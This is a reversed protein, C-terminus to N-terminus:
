INKMDKASVPAAKAQELYDLLADADSFVGYLERCAPKMFGQEITQELMQQLLDYYGDLNLVAIPKNHRGLQKLTLIEFFEEYTGIGGPTMIFGDSMEEMLGKRERMTETFILQSCQQYLVGPEDFFKPAIGIITGGGETMGRAVTGMLGTNGGGFVLGHGRRAMAAGLDFGAELYSRDIDNSSAGYVCLNMGEM